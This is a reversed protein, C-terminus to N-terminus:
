GPGSGTLGVTIAGRRRAEAVAQLINPSNGSGSLAIVVDGPEAWTHVQEAFVQDYHIDNALATLLPMADTVALARLRPRDPGAAGKSLDNAWHSATAGSGGNGCLLVKGGQIRVEDLLDILALIGAVPLAQIQHTLTDLYARILGTQPMRSRPFALLPNTM